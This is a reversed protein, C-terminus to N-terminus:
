SASYCNRSDRTFFSVHGLARLRAHQASIARDCRVIEATADPTDVIVGVGLICGPTILRVVTSGLWLSICPPCEAITFCHIPKQHAAQHNITTVNFNSENRSQTLVWSVTSGEATASRRIRRRITIRRLDASFYAARRIRRCIENASYRQVYV